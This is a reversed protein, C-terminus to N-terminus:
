QHTQEYRKLIRYARKRKDLGGEFNGLAVKMERRADTVKSSEDPKFENAGLQSIARKYAAHCAHIKQKLLLLRSNALEYEGILDSRSPPAEPRDDNGLIEGLPRMETLIMM